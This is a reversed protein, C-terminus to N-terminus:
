LETAVGNRIVVNEWGMKKYVKLRSKARRHYNDNFQDLFDVVIGLEKGDIKRCARGPEQQAQIESAGGGARIVVGLQVPDIGTDWVTSIVKKLKGAEFKKRYDERLKPTMKPEDEPLDGHRKFREFRVPDIKDYVLTYEPLKKKLNVAHEITDVLILVQHEEFSRAKNAIVTNRYDNSWFAAQKKAVDNTLGQTPDVSMNVDCWEVRIPVVLNLKVAEPYPLYFIREGFLAELRKDTGDMRGTPTATFAFNRTKKYKVLFKSAEDSILLHGEDALLIDADFDSHHLSDVSFVTIKSGWKKKGDGFQGVNPLYRTLYEHTKTVLQKGRSLVHIKANPFALCTMTLLAMKGFGTVAHIIGCRSKIVANLAEEQRPRFEFSERVNDLDPKYCDPRERKSDPYLDHVVVKIGAAQLKRYIRRTFGFNTVMRGLGDYRYIKKDIVTMTRLRGDLPDYRDVGYHRQVHQYSLEPELLERIPDPLAENGGTSLEIVNNSKRITVVPPPSNPVILMPETM